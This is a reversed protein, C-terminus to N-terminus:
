EGRRDEREETVIEEIISMVDDYDLTAIAEAYDTKGSWPDPEFGRGWVGVLWSYVNSGDTPLTQRQEWPVAEVM